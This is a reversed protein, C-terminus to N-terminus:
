CSGLTTRSFTAGAPRGTVRIPAASGGRSPSRGSISSAATRLALNALIVLLRSMRVSRVHVGLGIVPDAVVRAPIISAVVLIMRPLVPMKRPSKTGTVGIPEPAPPRRAEAEVPVEEADRRGINSEAVIPEPVVVVDHKVGIRIM